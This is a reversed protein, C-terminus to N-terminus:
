VDAGPMEKTAYETWKTITRIAAVYHSISEVNVTPLKSM